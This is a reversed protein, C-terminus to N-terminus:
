GAFLFLAFLGWGAALALWGWGRVGPTKWWMYLGSAIWVLLGICNLDVLVAWADDLLSDREYGGRAHVSQLFQPWRFRRDETHLRKQDIFYTVRVPKLFNPFYLNIQKQNPQYVGFSGNLGADRVIQAGIAKLDAGGPVALEYPRDFRTVWLPESNSSPEFWRPHAFPASSIAYVFFWLLLLAGLYLHLRRNFRNFTM